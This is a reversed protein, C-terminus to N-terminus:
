GGTTCSDACGAPFDDGGGLSLHRGVSLGALSGARMEVVARAGRCSAVRWPRLDDVVRLVRGDGGLFACAIPIRMGWTHVGACPELWLAEDIALDATFLLGVARALWRDARYVRAAYRRGDDGSLAGCPRACRDVRGIGM